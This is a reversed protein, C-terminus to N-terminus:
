ASPSSPSPRTSRGAAPSARPFCRSPRRPRRLRRAKFVRGWARATPAASGTACRSPRRAPVARRHSIGRPNRARPRLAMLVLLPVMVTRSWYSVKSLHFFFWRPLHMIEVPMAPAARWPVQGFLALQIRTFVNSREAGGAPWSPPAPARCTRRTRRRRRHADPRLLGQRQRLPRLRRRPVAALRWARGPHPAPLRRDQGAAARDIRDLYHELLVYEAPITADAELEFVWHGDPRQRRLSRPPRAARHGHELSADFHPDPRTLPGPSSALDPISVDPPMRIQILAKLSHRRGRNPRVQHGRRDNRALRHRDLRRGPGPQAFATRTAPRRREQEPTAAFTARKEKVVRYPPIPETLSCHPVCM